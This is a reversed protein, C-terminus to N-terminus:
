EKILSTTVLLGESDEGHKYVLKNYHQRIEELRKEADKEEVIEAVSYIKSQAIIKVKNSM